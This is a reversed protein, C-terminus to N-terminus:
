KSEMGFSINVDVTGGDFDSSLGHHKAKALPPGTRLEARITSPM